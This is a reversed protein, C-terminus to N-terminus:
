RKLSRRILYPSFRTPPDALPTDAPPSVYRRLPTDAYPRLPSKRTRWASVGKASV